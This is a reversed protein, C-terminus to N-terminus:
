EHVPRAVILANRKLPTKTEHDWDGWAHFLVEEKYKIGAGRRTGPDHVVYMRNKEDYGWILVHHYLPGPPKFYPNKLERGRAPFLVVKGDMVAARIVEMNKQNYLIEISSSPVKGFETLIRASEEITTDKWYGFYKTQWRRMTKFLQKMERITPSRKKHWWIMAMAVTAEECADRHTESWLNGPAQLIFPVDGAYMLSPFSFLFVGILIMM